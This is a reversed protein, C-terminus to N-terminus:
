LIRCFNAVSTIYHTLLRWQGIDQRLMTRFAKDRARHILRESCYGFAAGHGFNSILQTGALMLYMLAWFNIQSRLEAFEAPPLSLATIAKAFFIAQVPNGGGAIVSCIFGILMIHWEKKNFSWVVGMLKWLSYEQVKEESRKGLEVSSISKGSQMRKLRGAPDEDDPDIPQGKENTLSHQLKQDDVDQLIEVEEPDENKIEAAIRQAEVLNFYAGKRDLLDSHQGQEIIAGQAMVVINDAHKITSLRHAIVITTRGQAAKDLAAQV